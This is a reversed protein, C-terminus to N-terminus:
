KSWPPVVNNTRAYAILQGLHEHLHTATSIWTGRATTDSGFVKMPADLKADPSETMAKKLFAFSAQLDAMAEARTRKRGEFAEATKYDTGSIGTAAPAAVGLAAPMFYNDTAVHAVVEGVSRVGKGPRWNWAADPMAKALGTIKTEVDTVDSVLDGMVGARKQAVVGAVAAASVFLAVLVLLRRRGSM